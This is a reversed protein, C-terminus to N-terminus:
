FTPHYGMDSWEEIATYGLNPIDVQIQQDKVYCNHHTSYWLFLIILSEQTADITRPSM